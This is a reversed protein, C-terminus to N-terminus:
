LFNLRVLGDGLSATTRAFRGVMLGFVGFVGGLDQKEVFVVSVDVLVQNDVLHGLGSISVQASRSLFDSLDLAFLGGKRLHHLLFVKAVGALLFLVFFLM